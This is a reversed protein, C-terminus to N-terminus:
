GDDVMVWTALTSGRGEPLYVDKNIIKAFNLQISLFEQGTIESMRKGRDIFDTAAKITDRSRAYYMMHLIVYYADRCSDKPQQV